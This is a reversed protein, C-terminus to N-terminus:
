QELGARPSSGKRGHARGRARQPSRSSRPQLDTLAPLVALMSSTTTLRASPRMGDTLASGTGRLHNLLQWGDGDASCSGDRSQRQLCDADTPQQQEQQLSLKIPATHDVGRTLLPLRRGLGTGHPSCDTPSHRGASSDQQHAIIHEGSRRLVEPSMSKSVRRRLRAKSRRTEEPQRHEESVSCGEPSCVSDVDASYMTGPSGVKLILDTSRDELTAKHPWLRVASSVTSCAETPGSPRSGGFLLGHAAAEALIAEATGFAPYPLQDETSRRRSPEVRSLASQSQAGESHRRDSAGEKGPDDSACLAGGNDTPRTQRSEVNHNGWAKREVPEKGHRSSECAASYHRSELTPSSRHSSAGTKLGDRSRRHAPVLSGRSMEVHRNVCGNGRGSTSSLPGDTGDLVDGVCGTTGIQGDIDTNRDGKLVASQSLGMECCSCCDSGDVRQSERRPWAFEIGAEGAGLPEAAASVTPDGKAGCAASGGKGAWILDGGSPQCGEQGDGLFKPHDKGDASALVARGATQLGSPSAM